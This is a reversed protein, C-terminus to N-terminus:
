AERSAHSYFNPVNQRHLISCCDRRALPTHTSIEHKYGLATVMGDRRALPTHTSIKNSDTGMRYMLTVGRSLRTLLFRLNRSCHGSGSKDRRALPTHTSIIFTVHNIDSEVTVGRSLRTLLFRVHNERRKGCEDDRRALPTHTSIVASAAFAPTGTM